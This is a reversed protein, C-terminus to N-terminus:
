SVKAWSSLSVSTIDSSLIEPSSSSGAECVAAACLRAGSLATGLFAQSPPLSGLDSRQLKPHLTACAIASPVGVRRCTWRHADNAAFFRSPRRGADCDTLRLKNRKALNSAELGFIPAAALLLRRNRETNHRKKGRKRSRAAQAASGPQDRPARRAAPKRGRPAPENIDAPITPPRGRTQNPAAHYNKKDPGPQPARPSWPQLRTLHADSLVDRRM